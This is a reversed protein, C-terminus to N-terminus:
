KLREHAEIIELLNKVHLSLKLMRERAFRAEEKRIAAENADSTQSACIEDYLEDLSGIERMSEDIEVVKKIFDDEKM